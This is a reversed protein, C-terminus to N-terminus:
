AVRISGQAGCKCCRFRGLFHRLLMAPESSSVPEVLSLLAVMRPDLADEGVAPTVFGDQQSPVGAKYDQFSRIEGMNVKPRQAQEDAYIAVRDGFLLYEYRWGCSSCRFQGESGQDLLAALDLLGDAAAMGSLLYRSVDADELHESFAHECLVRITPSASLFEDRIRDVKSLDDAGVPGVALIKLYRTFETQEQHSYPVGRALHSAFLSRFCDLKRDWADLTQPLGQLARSESGDNLDPMRERARLAVHGAFLAIELRQQRNAAPEAIKLLHPIAAYTAGYCTGQHCLCDWFLSKASEEDWRRSLRSLLEPIDRDRHADDLKKWLADNLPLM